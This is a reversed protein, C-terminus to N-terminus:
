PKDPKVEISDVKDTYFALREKIDGVAPFPMEYSWVANEIEGAPTRITFYSADGKYSCHSTHDTRILRDMAADSRPIYYVPPYRSEHMVIADNSQAIIEGGARVTVCGAAPEITIPHAPSPLKM